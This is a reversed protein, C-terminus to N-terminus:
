ELTLQELSEVEHKVDDYVIKIPSNNKIFNHAEFSANIFETGAFHKSSYAEHIHGFIHLRPEVELVKDLLSVSGPEDGRNTM